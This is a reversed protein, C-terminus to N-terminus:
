RGAPRYGYAPQGDETRGLFWRGDASVWGTQVRPQDPASPPSWSLTLWPADYRWSGEVGCRELRGGAYLRVRAPPGSGVWAGWEGTLPAEPGAPVAAVGDYPLGALPWGEADWVLPRIQLKPVGGDEADYFHHAIYERGGDELISGHGPGRVRGHGVLVVSGGGGTMAVGDRDLYPGTISASRGVRVHYTSEIGRCCLDFSVFLYYRDGRRIIYPAEVAGGATPRAALRYRMTDTSSLAGTRPDLKRLMIGGWWSGWAIWPEGAADFAVNPDIANHDDMGPRSELVKGRDEWRYEPSAPDLTANTALGIVSRQSGFTSLSYYLHYRGGFYAVDPAWPATVGSVEGSAWGPLQEPFVRGVWEWQVLDRSRRIPIGDTTSFVYYTDGHRVIEPDHVHRVSGVQTPEDAYPLLEAACSHAPPGPGPGAADSCATAALLLLSGGRIRGNVTRFSGAPDWEM